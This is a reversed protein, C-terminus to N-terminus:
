HFNVVFFKNFLYYQPTKEKKDENDTIIVFPNQSRKKSMQENTSDSFRGSSSFAHKM